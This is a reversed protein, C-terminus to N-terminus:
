SVVCCFSFSGYTWLNLSSWGVFLMRKCCPRYRKKSAREDLGADLGVELWGLLSWLDCVFADIPSRNQSVFRVFMIIIGFLPIHEAFKYRIQHVSIVTIWPEERHERGLHLSAWAACAADASTFFISLYHGQVLFALGHNVWFSVCVNRSWGFPTSHRNLPFGPYPLGALVGVCSWSPGPKGWNWYTEIYKLWGRSLKASDIRRSNRSTIMIQAITTKRQNTSINAIEETSNDSTDVNLTNPKQM